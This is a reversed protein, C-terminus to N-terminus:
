FWWQQKWQWLEQYKTHLAWNNDNFDVKFLHFVANLGNDVSWMTVSTARYDGWLVGLQVEMVELWALYIQVQYLPVQQLPWPMKTLICDLVSWQRKAAITQEWSVSVKQTMMNCDSVHAFRHKVFRANRGIHVLQQWAMQCAKGAVIEQLQWFIHQLVCFQAQEACDWLLICIGVSQLSLRDHQLICMAM